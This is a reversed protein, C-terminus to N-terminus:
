SAAGRSRLREFLEVVRAANADWTLGLRSLTARGRAGLQARLPPSAALRELAEDFAGARAPDFLLANEGDALVERLNARDPAVVARGAALYDLLKLPSAYETAEPLIAVDFAAVHALLEGRALTGLFRLREAVRLRAAEAELRARDPGDGILLLVAEPHRALFPFARELRNWDRVFGVFGVALRGDLHLRERLAAGDPPARLAEPELGNWHVEIRERAVGQAVLREALAQTVAVVRDARRLTATEHRRAFAAFRLGGHARREDALPANVEVVVPLRLREGVAVASSCFLAHRSYIADPHLRAAAARLRRREVVNYAIEALERLASARPPGREAAGGDARSAAKEKPGVVVVEHGARRLAGVLGDIHVRQGDRSRTRHHYLLRV